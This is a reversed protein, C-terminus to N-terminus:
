ERKEVVKWEKEEEVRKYVKGVVEEWKIKMFEKDKLELVM